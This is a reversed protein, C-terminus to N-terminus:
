RPPPPGMDGPPPGGPGRGGDWPGRGRGEGGRDRRAQMKDFEIRQTSDLVARVKLGTSDIIAKLRAGPGDWFAAVETRSAAFISDVQKQQTDTLNLRGGFMRGPRGPEGPRGERSMETGPRGRGFGRPGHPGHGLVWGIGVGAILTLLLVAGALLRTRRQLTTDTAPATM